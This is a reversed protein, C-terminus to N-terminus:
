SVTRNYVITGNITGNNIINVGGGVTNPATWLFSAPDTASLISFEGSTCNIVLDDYDNDGGIPTDECQITRNNNTLQIRARPSSPQSGTNRSTKIINNTADRVVFAVGGPNLYWYDNVDSSNNRQAVNLIHTGAPVNSVTFTDSGSKNTTSGITTGNWKFTAQGDVAGEVTVTGANSVVISYDTSLWQNYYPNRPIMGSGTALPFVNYSQMFSGWGWAAYQQALTPFADNSRQIVTGSPNKLEFAIGAPNTAWGGGNDLNSVLITLFNHSNNNAVPLSLTTTTNHPSSGNSGIRVGNWYVTATNDVQFDITHTGASLYSYWTGTHPSTTVLVDTNSPYYAYDVMFQSWNPTSANGGGLSSKVWATEVINHESWTVGSIPDTVVIGNITTGATCNISQSNQQTGGLGFVDPGTTINGANNNPASNSHSWVSGTSYPSQSNTSSFVCSIGSASGTTVRIANGDLGKDGGLRECYDGYWSSSSGISGDAPVNSPDGGAGGAGASACGHVEGAGGSGRVRDTSDEGDVSITDYTGRVHKDGGLGNPFGAGGGGGGGGATPDSSGSGPNCAATGGGGGGGYGTQIYGNNIVTAPSQEVGLGSTANYPANNGISPHNPPIVQGGNYCNWGGNGGDGGAGFVEADPGLNITFDTDTDWIGSRVAVKSPDEDAKVSGIKKNVHGIVKKGSTSSPKSIFGGVIDVDDNNYKDKINERTTTAGTYLDVVMNLRAQYFDSFRIAGAQPIDKNKAAGANTDLPINVLAGYTESVRYKGLGNLNGGINSPYGFEAAIDSFKITDGTTKNITM